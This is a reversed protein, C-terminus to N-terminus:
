WGRSPRASTAASSASWAGSGAPWTTTSPTPFYCLYLNRAAQAKVRSM